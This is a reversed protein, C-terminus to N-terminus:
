KSKNLEKLKLVGERKSFESALQAMKETMRKQVAPIDEGLAVKNILKLKEDSASYTVVQEKFLNLLTLKDTNTFFKEMSLYEFDFKIHKQYENEYEELNAFNTKLINRADEVTILNRSEFVQKKEPHLKYVLMDNILSIKKLAVDHKDIDDGAADKLLQKRYLKLEKWEKDSTVKGITERIYDVCDKKAESLRAAIDIYYEKVKKIDRSSKIQLNNFDPINFSDPLNEMSFEEAAMNRAELYQEKLVSKLDSIEHSIKRSKYCKLGKIAILSAGIVALGGLGATLLGNHGSKEMEASVPEQQKDSNHAPSNVTMFYFTNNRAPSVTNMLVNPM